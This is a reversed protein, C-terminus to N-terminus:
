IVEVNAVDGGNSSVYDWVRRLALLTEEHMNEVLMDKNISFGSEVFANGHSLILLIKVCHWIDKFDSQKGMAKYLVHDLRDKELDFSRGLEPGERDLFLSFQMSAREAEIKSIHKRELLLALNTESRHPNDQCDIKM